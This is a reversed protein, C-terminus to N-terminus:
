PATMATLLGTVVVRHTNSTPPWCTILTLRADETPAMYRANEQRRALSMNAEPFRHWGNVRYTFERGAEDVLIMADGLGFAVGPEGIVGVSRFVAGGINNHGSLVVNGAEGPYVSDLHHGAADDVLDWESRLGEADAVVHWGMTVVPTDLGLAPIRLRVPPRGAGVPLPAITPLAIPGAQDVRASAAVAVTTPPPAPTSTIVSPSSLIGAPPSTPEPSLTPLRASPSPVAASSPPTPTFTPPTVPATSTVPPTAPAAPAVPRRMATLGFFVVLAAILGALALFSRTTHM